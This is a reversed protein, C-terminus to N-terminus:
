HRLEQSVPKSSARDSFHCPYGSRAPAGAGQCACAVDAM